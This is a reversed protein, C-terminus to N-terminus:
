ASKRCLITHSLYQITSHLVNCMKQILLIGMYQSSHSGRGRIMMMVGDKLVARLWAGSSLPHTLSSPHQFLWTQRRTILCVQRSHLRMVAATLRRPRKEEPSRDRQRAHVSTDEHTWSLLTSPNWVVLAAPGATQGLFAGAIRSVPWSAPAMYYGPLAAPWRLVFGGSSAAAGRAGSKM